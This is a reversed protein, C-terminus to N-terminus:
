CNKIQIKVGFSYIGHLIQIKAGNTKTKLPWLKGSEVTSKLWFEGRLEFTLIFDSKKLSKWVSHKSDKATSFSLMLVTINHM